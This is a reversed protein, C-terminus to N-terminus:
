LFAFTKPTKSYQSNVATHDTHCNECKDEKKTLKQVFQNKRQMQFAAQKKEWHTTM